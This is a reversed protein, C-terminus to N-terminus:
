PYLGRMAHASAVQEVALATAAVRLPVGIRAACEITRNWAASMREVLRAEIEAESWWFAQSSQVWEFYSVVVGGANALIDPVVLVDRALLIEEAQKTTPGNAGEVIISARVEHANGAHRV